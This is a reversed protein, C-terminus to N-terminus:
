NALEERLKKMGAKSAPVESKNKLRVTSSSFNIQDLYDLNLLASRHIRVFRFNGLKVELDKLSKRLTYANTKTHVRVCYDDSQIWIIEDVPISKFTYGTKIHLHPVEKLTSRRKLTLNTKQLEKIEISQVKLSKEQTYFAILFASGILALLFTLGKQYFFFTFFETLIPLTLVEKQHYISHLSIISLALVVTLLM